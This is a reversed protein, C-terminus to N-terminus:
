SKKKTSETELTKYFDPLNEKIIQLLENERDIHQQLQLKLLLNARTLQANQGAYENALKAGDINDAEKFFDM